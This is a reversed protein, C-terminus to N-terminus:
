IVELPNSLILRSQEIADKIGAIEAMLKTSLKGYNRVTLHPKDKSKKAARRHLIPAFHM